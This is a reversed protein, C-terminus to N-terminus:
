DGYGQKQSIFLNAYLGGKAMLDEHRGSEVVAGSELVYIMDCDIVSSLRHAVMITTKGKSLRGLAVKVREETQQDLASTAEDLLVIPADRLFARAIAIRQKQGGSLQAGKPGVPAGRRAEVLEKLEAAEAAAWVEEESAEPRVYHVNEFISQNFIVIDQAVVSFASRLPKIKIDQLSQGGITVSGTNPEYLRSLLSLVTTKGSGTPGVIATVQGGKMTMNLDRFLPQGKSYRFKVDKLEIDALPNFDETAGPKDFIEPQEFFLKRVGRLLVLSAQLSVFYSSLRRAPDFVLVLGVLFTIIGAGDIDYDPSLVMYGGGGIVLVYAIAAAFDIFPLVTAQASQLRISLDKMRATSDELRAQEVAEQGSIKVTRMGNVMEEIGNMYEAIAAEATAQIEKIRHSVVQLTLLIIPLIAITSLFLLPQKYILYGSIVIVTAFDKLAKVTSQGVFGALGEPRQVLTLMAHGPTTKEFYALDLTMIHRIMDNRMRQVADSAIWVSMRPIFYSMIGRFVFVGFVTLCVVVLESPSGKEFVVRLGDETLRLFQQYVLGQLGIMVLVVILLGSKEKLYNDWFWRIGERDEPLFFPRKEDRPKLFPLRMRLDQM